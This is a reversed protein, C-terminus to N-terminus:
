DPKVVSQVNLNNIWNLPWYTVKNNGFVLWAEPDYPFVLHLGASECLRVEEHILEILPKIDKGMHGACFDALTM